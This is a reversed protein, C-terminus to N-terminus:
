KPSVGLAEITTNEGVIDNQTVWGIVNPFTVKWWYVGKAWIGNLGNMHDIVTGSTDEQIAAISEYNFGPGVRLSTAKTTTITEEPSLADSYVAPQVVVMMMGNAVWRQYTRPIPQEGKGNAPIAPLFVYHKCFVNNCFTNNKVEGNIVMTSSGGGDQAIAWTAQISEHLTFEALEQITMGRSDRVDRGDVVIFYIYDDNYAIATRPHRETAGANDFTQIEGDKLYVYDGGISAYSKTWGNPSLPPSCGEEYHTIEQSIRVETGPQANTELEDAASGHASLVIHDFPIMTAGKGSLIARVYGSAYAPEPLVLTPRTMEVLVEVGNDETTPTYSDYQPTYIVLQNNDRESNIGDINQTNGNSFYVFQNDPEHNVCGGIFASRDLKWVFGSGGALDDFRKAYWGSHIQGSEPVGSDWDFYSGNIAVVVDNRLGWTRTITSQGWFNIADDYRAAMSSVSERGSVLQGQAISSELIVDENDRQMRAVFVNNPDPLDYERYEIGPAVLEGWQEPTDQAVASTLWVLGLVSAMFLITRLKM